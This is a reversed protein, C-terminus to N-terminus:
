NSIILEMAGQQCTVAIHCLINKQTMTSMTSLTIISYVLRYLNTRSISLYVHPMTPMKLKVPLPTLGSSRPLIVLMRLCRPGSSSPYRRALVEVPLHSSCALSPVTGSSFRPVCWKGVKSEAVAAQRDNVQGSSSMLRHTIFISNYTNVITTELAPPAM